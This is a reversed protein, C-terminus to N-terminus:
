LLKNNIMEEYKKLVHMKKSTKGFGAQVRKSKIYTIADDSTYGLYKVFWGAVILLSRSKGSKCHVYISRGNRINWNIFEVGKQLTEVYMTYFDSCPTQYHKFNNNKWQLPTVPSYIYGESNNEFIETASLVAKINLNQLTILDNRELNKFYGGVSQIIPVAGLYISVGDVKIIEDWWNKNINNYEFQNFTLISSYNIYYKFIGVYEKNLSPIIKMHDEWEEDTFHIEPCNVLDDIKELQLKNLSKKAFEVSEKIFNIANKLQLILSNTKLTEVLGQMGGNEIDPLGYYALKFERCIVSIIKVSQTIINIDVNKDINEKIFELESAMVNVIKQGFNHLDKILKKTNHAKVINAITQTGLINSLYQATIIFHGNRDLHVSVNPPLRSFMDLDILIDTVINDMNLKTSIYKNIPEM